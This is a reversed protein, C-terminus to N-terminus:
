RSRFPNFDLGFPSRPLCASVINALRVVSPSLLGGLRRRTGQAFTALANALAGRNLPTFYRSKLYQEVSLRQAETRALLHIHVENMGRRAAESWLPHAPGLRKALSAAQGIYLIHVGKQERRCLMYVGPIDYHEYGSAPIVSFVIGACWM